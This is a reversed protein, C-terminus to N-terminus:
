CQSDMGVWDNTEAAPLRRRRARDTTVCVLPSPSPFPISFMEGHLSLSLFGKSCGALTKVSGRNKLLFLLHKAYIEM